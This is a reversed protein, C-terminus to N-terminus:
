TAAVVTSPRAATKAVRTAKAHEVARLISEPTAPLRLEVETGADAFAGVAHRLAGIVGIALMLPPEGVAKSGHIVGDQPARELLSVRFDEPAEGVAPIKYTSPSHTLLRGKADFLVEECTLWGLGQIFAGEVQGRDITPILSDGVDHLVDARLVRHEGTLANLEVECVAAGYAFYYFPTGKGAARDYGIGPTRYYGTSSLSVQAVYAAAAVKEFTTEKDTGPLFVRGNEFVIKDADGNHLGLLKAAIPRMRERITHCAEKVAQGNLDSGSSAATASTNPVKDTATNMVRISEVPVGLEHACVALMKSHLGQGMETGGHNMQVSGDAYVLVLAGAQNLMTMTFSIGFKVPSFAIGRKVHKHTANFQEVAAKRKTYESSALLEDCIRPMRNDKVVQTYPAVNRPADGYFNRRRLEAPDLKLREAARSMIEEIVLMGQPGGFGRFATNSPLNTRAVYGELHVAPLYYCNDIHFLARDLIALSLDASWGGNATVRARLGLITGDAAFAARYRTLFPHRKGTTIMDQDRNLWVKVPRRTHHAGLAALAAFHAAQTEKGGFGGGMRPCEVVVASRPTHLIEAVKAQVESPHQTSSVIHWTGNELPTALAAHTELYFHDQGGCESEGELILAADKFAADVDGRRIVHPAGIFANAAEAEPITLIPKLEEYEVKVAALAKRCAEPTEAVVLAVAQGVCFVENEALLPEDPLAPGIQNHGPIDQATLVALVGPIARAGSVDLQKIRGRAVPSSLVQGHLMGKPPPLDDVYLAAGSVHRYASEHLAPRHLPSQSMPSEGM